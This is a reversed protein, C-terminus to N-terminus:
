FGTELFRRTRCCKMNWIPFFIANRLVPLLLASGLNIATDESDQLDRSRCMRQWEKVFDPHPVDRTYHGALYSRFYSPRRQAHARPCGPRMAYGHIYIYIFIPIYIYIYVCIYIYTFIYIYVCTYVFIYIYMCPFIHACMWVYM